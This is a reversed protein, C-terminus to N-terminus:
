TAGAAAAIEQAEQTSEEGLAPLLAALLQNLEAAMLIFDSDLKEEPTLGAEASSREQLLDLATVRKCDATDTLVFSIRDQWTLALRTCQYGAEVHRTIADPALEHRVYRIVGASDGSSQWQCEPDLTFGDPAQGAIMWSTMLGAVSHALRLPEVPYPYLSKGLASLVEETQASSAADIVLWRNVPDVWVAIDRAIRFARPMLEDTVSQKLDKLQKRGPRYGQEGELLLARAKVEQNIVTAPLLKKELRLALRYQGEIAVALRDDSDRPPVWGQSVASLDDSSAFVHSQLAADIAEVNDAWHSTLRFVKLNRFWM